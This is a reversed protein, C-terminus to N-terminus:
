GPDASLPGLRDVHGEAQEQWSAGAVEPALDALPAMVFRRSRMRPHPIELDPETMTIGEMWVIDVDLTRPGWRVVRVRDAASELRHCVGLLEHPTLDTDIEVVINLFPDQEPGGVPDTRYLPSVAVVGDLSDVAERLLSLSDGMNSGLSLFARTM